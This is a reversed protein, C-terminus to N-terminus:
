CARASLRTIMRWVERVNRTELWTSAADFITWLVFVPHVIQFPKALGRIVRHNELKGPLLKFPRMRGDVSTANGRSSESRKPQHHLGPGLGNGLKMIFLRDAAPLVVENPRSRFACPSLRVSITMTIVAVM